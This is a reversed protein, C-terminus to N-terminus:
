TKMCHTCFFVKNQFFYRLIERYSSGKKAMENATNLSMGFGHGVGKTVICIKTEQEEASFCASPIGLKERFYEGLGERDKWKAKIVYGANDKEFVINEWLIKEESQFIDQLREALETKKIFFEQRYNEAFVDEQCRISKLYPYSESGWVTDATRTDGASLPFFPLAVPKSEYYLLQNETDKVASKLCEYEKEFDEGWKEYFEEMTLAKQELEEYSLFQEEEEKALHYVNTRLLIALAKNAEPELGRSVSAAMAGVLYEELPIEERGALSEKM